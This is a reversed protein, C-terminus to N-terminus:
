FSLNLRAELIRRLREELFSFSELPRRRRGSADLFCVNSRALSVINVADALDM